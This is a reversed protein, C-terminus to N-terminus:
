NLDVATLIYRRNNRVRVARLHLTVHGM